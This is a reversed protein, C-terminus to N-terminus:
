GSGFEDNAQGCPVKLKSSVFIGPALPSDHSHSGGHQQITHYMLCKVENELRTTVFGEEKEEESRVEVESHDSHAM